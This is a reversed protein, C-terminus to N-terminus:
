VGVVPDRSPSRIGEPILRYVVEVIMVEVSVFKVEAVNM